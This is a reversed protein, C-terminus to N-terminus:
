ANSVERQIREIATTGEGVFYASIAQKIAFKAEESPSEAIAQNGYGLITAARMDKRMAMLVLEIKNLLRYNKGM